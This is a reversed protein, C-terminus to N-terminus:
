KNNIEGPLKAKLDDLRSSVISGIFEKLDNLAAEHKFSKILRAVPPTNDTAGEVLNGEPISSNNLESITELNLAAETKTGVKPLPPEEM